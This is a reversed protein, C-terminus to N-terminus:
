CFYMSYWNYILLLNICHQVRTCNITTNRYCQWKQSVQNSFWWERVM